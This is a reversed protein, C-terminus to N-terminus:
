CGGSTFEVVKGGEHEKKEMCLGELEKFDEPGDVHTATLDEDLNVTEKTDRFEIDLSGQDIRYQYGSIDLELHGEPMSDVAMAANKIRDAQAEATEELIFSETYAQSGYIVSILLLFTFGAEMMSFPYSAQGKM